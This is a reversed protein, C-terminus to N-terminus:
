TAQYKHMYCIKVELVSNHYPFEIGNKACNGCRVGRLPDAPSTGIYPEFVVEEEVATINGNAWLIARHGNIRIIDAAGDVTSVKGQELEFNPNLLHTGCLFKEPNKACQVGKTTLHVCM